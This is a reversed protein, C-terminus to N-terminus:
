FLKYISPKVPKRDRKFSVCFLDIRFVPNTGFKFRNQRINFKVGYLNNEAGEDIIKKCIEFPIFGKKIMSGRFTTACFPCKLNCASTVEVDIFLPFEGVHFAAPLEKWKKRDETFRIDGKKLVSSLPGLIDEGAIHHFNSNAKIIVTNQSM